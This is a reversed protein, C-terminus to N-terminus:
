PCCCMNSWPTYPPYGMCCGTLRVPRLYILTVYQGLLLHVRYALTPRVRSSSAVVLGVAAVGICISISFALSFFKARSRSQCRRQLERLCGMAPYRLPLPRTRPHVFVCERTGMTSHQLYMPSYRLFRGRQLQKSNPCHEGCKPTRTRSKYRSSMRSPLEVTNPLYPDLIPVAASPRM